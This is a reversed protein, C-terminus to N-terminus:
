SSKLFHAENKSIMLCIRFSKFTTDISSQMTGMNKAAEELVTFRRSLESLQSSLVSSVEGGDKKKLVSFLIFGVVAGCTIYLVIEMM